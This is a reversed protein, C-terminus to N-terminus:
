LQPIIADCDRYLGQYMHVFQIISKQVVSLVLAQHSFIFCVFLVGGGGGVTKACFATRGLYPFSQETDDFGGGACCLTLEGLSSYGEVLSVTILSPM